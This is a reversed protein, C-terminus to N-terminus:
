VFLNFDNIVHNVLSSPIDLFPKYKFLHENKNKLVDTPSHEVRSYFITSLSVHTMHTRLSGILADYIHIIIIMQFCVPEM